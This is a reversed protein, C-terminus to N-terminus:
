RCGLIQFLKEDSLLVDMATSGWLGTGGGVDIIYVDEKGQNKSALYKLLKQNNFDLIDYSSLGSYGWQSSPKFKVKEFIKDVAEQVAKPREGLVIKQEENCRVQKMAYSSSVFIGTVLLSFLIKKLFKM